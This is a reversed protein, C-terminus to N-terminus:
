NKSPLSNFLLSEESLTRVMTSEIDNMCGDVCVEIKNEVIEFVKWYIGDENPIAYPGYSRDGVSVQVMASSNKMIDVGGGSFNHVYYTYDSFLDIDTITITEPGEGDTDDRDLSDLAASSNGYFIHYDETGNTKKVLHADLDKPSQGWRLVIRVEGSDLMPSLSLGISNSENGISIVNLISTIYGDKSVTFTYNGSLLDVSYSGDSGTEIAVLVDGNYNSNGERVEILSSSLGYSSIADIVQGTIIGNSGIFEEELVLQGEYVLTQGEELNILSTVPMYGEAEVTIRYEGPMINEFIYDGTGTSETRNSLITLRVIAGPLPNGHRDKISSKLTASEPIYLGFTQSSISSYGEVYSALSFCYVRGNELNFLQQKESFNLRIQRNTIIEDSNEYISSSHFLQYDDGCILDEAQEIQESILIKYGADYGYELNEDLDLYEPLDFTLYKISDGTLYINEIGAPAPIRPIVELSLPLNVNGISNSVNIVNITGDLNLGALGYLNDKYMNVIVDTTEGAELRGQLTQVDLYESLYGSTEIRWDLPQKGENKLIMNRSVDLFEDSYVAEHQTSSIVNLRASELNQTSIDIHIVNRVFKLTPTNKFTDNVKKELKKAWNFNNLPYPIYYSPTITTKWDIRLGASGSVGENIVPTATAMAEIWPGSKIDLKVGSVNMVSLGAEVSVYAGASITGTPLKGTRNLNVITENVINLQDDFVNFGFRKISEREVGVEVETALEGTLGGFFAVEGKLMLWGSPINFKLTKPTGSSNKGLLSIKKEFNNLVAKGKLAVEGRQEVTTIFRMSELGNIFSSNFDFISSVKVTISGTIVLESGDDGKYIPLNITSELPDHLARNISNEEGIFAITFEDDSPNKPPLLRANSQSLSRNITEIDEVLDEHTLNRNLSMGGQSYVELFSVSETTLLYNYDDIKQSSLVKRFFREEGDRKIIIDGAVIAEIFDRQDVPTNIDLNVTYLDDSIHVAYGTLDKVNDNYESEKYQTRLMVTKDSQISKVYCKTGDGSVQNCGQWGIIKMDVEPAATFTIDEGVPIFDKLVYETDPSVLIKSNNTEISTKVGPIFELKRFEPSDILESSNLSLRTGMLSRLSGEVKEEALNSHIQSALGGEQILKKYDFSLSEKNVQNIPVFHKVNEYSVEVAGKKFLKRSVSSLAKEFDVPHVNGVLHKTYNYVIESLITINVQGSRLESAKAWGRIKGFNETPVPDIVGDDNSDIDYGGHIEVLLMEDDKIGTLEVLFEGLEGTVSEEMVNNTDLFRYVKVTAGKLPGMAAINKGDVFSYSDDFSLSAQDSESGGGGGCGYLIALISLTISLKLTHLMNM